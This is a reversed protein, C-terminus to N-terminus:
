GHTALDSRARKSDGDLLSLAICNGNSRQSRYKAHRRYIQDTFGCRTTM